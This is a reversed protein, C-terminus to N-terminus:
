FMVKEFFPPLKIPRVPGMIRYLGCVTPYGALQLQRNFDGAATSEPALGEFIQFVTFNEHNKM